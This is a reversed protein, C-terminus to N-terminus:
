WYHEVSIHGPKRRLHKKLSRFNILYQQTEKVMNPNGCLMIHSTQPNITYGIKKELTQSHLLQPIRGTLSNQNNYERSIITTFILHNLYKKIKKILSSYILDKKYKVAHVLIIKKFRNLKSGNQLISCFPGIATGTAFMWLIECDPIEQITFFGNPNKDILIKKHNLLNYLQHSMIGHQILTVCFELNKNKYSNVFSYARQIYKQKYTTAIKTFQGSLFPTIPAHLFLKFLNPTWKQVRIVTANIWKTM